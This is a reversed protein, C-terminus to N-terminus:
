MTPYAQACKPWDILQDTLGTSVLGHM